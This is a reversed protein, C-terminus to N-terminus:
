PLSSFKANEVFLYTLKIGPNTILLTGVIPLYQARPCQRPVGASWFHWTEVSIEVFSFIASCGMEVEVVSGQM